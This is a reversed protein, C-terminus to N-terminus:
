IIILYNFGRFMCQVNSAPQGGRKEGGAVVENNGAVCRTHVDVAVIYTTVDRSKVDRIMCVYDDLHDESKQRLFQRRGLSNEIGRM